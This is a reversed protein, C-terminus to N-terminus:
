IKVGLQCTCGKMGCGCECTKLNIKEVTDPRFKSEPEPKPEPIVQIMKNQEGNYLYIYVIGRKIYSYGGPHNSVVNIIVRVVKIESDVDPNRKEVWVFPILKAKDDGIEELAGIGAMGTNEWKTIENPNLEGEWDVEAYVPISMFLVMLLVILYKM